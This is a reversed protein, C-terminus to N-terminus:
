KEADQMNQIAQEKKRATMKEFVITHVEVVREPSESEEM